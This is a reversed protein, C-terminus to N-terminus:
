YNRNHWERTNKMVVDEESSESSVSVTFRDKIHKKIRDRIIEQNREGYDEYLNDKRNPACNIHGIEHCNLCVM